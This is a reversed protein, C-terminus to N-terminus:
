HPQLELIFSNEGNNFFGKKFSEIIPGDFQLIERKVEEPLKPRDLLMVVAELYKNILGCCRSSEALYLLAEWEYKEYSVDNCNKPLPKFAIEKFFLYAYFFNKQDFYYKGIAFLPEIRDMRNLYAALYTNIFENEPSELKQQITAISYLCHYIDDPPGPMQMRKIYYALAKEYDGCISYSRALNFVTRANTPDKDFEEQLIKADNVYKDPNKSRNGSYYTECYFDERTGLSKKEDSIVIEHLVGEWRWSLDNKILLLRSFNVKNKADHISVFYGDKQLSCKDLDTKLFVEEDADIFFLYDSKGEALKLAEQRNYGFNVWPREHLEGPIDRLTNKIIEITSDSSGTDVIVWYDILSKVSNLCNEIVEAEDKVIMNLCITKPKEESFSSSLILCFLSLVRFM